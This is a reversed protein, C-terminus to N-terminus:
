IMQECLTAMSQARLLSHEGHGIEPNFGFYDESLADKAFRMSLELTIFPAACPLSQREAKTLFDSIEIYLGLAERAYERNYAPEQDEARPNAWSRIGDGIDFSVRSQAMTDLDIVGTITNDTFLFNSIKPDGHIIRLDECDMVKTYDVFRSLHEIKQTLDVVKQYLRHNKYKDIAIKLNNHHREFDHVGPRTHKFTYHYQDLARHFQSLVKILTRIQEINEVFHHTKGALKTMLRWQGEALGFDKGDISYKKDLTCILKPVPVQHKSLIETLHAIDDNVQPGFIPNVKQLIFLDDIDFTQNILGDTIKTYKQPVPLGYVNTFIKRVSELFPDDILDKPSSLTIIHVM